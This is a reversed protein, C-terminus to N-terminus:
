LREEQTTRTWLHEEQSIHFPCSPLSLQITHATYHYMFAYHISVTSITYRLACILIDQFQVHPNKTYTVEEFGLGRTPRPVHFITTLLLLM